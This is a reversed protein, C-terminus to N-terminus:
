GKKYEVARYMNKLSNDSSQQSTNAYVHGAAANSSALIAGHQTSTKLSYPLSAIDASHQCRSAAGCSHPHHHHHLHRNTVDIDGYNMVEEEDYDDSLVQSYNDFETSANVNLQRQFAPMSTAAYSCEIMDLHDRQQQQQQKLHHSGGAGVQSYIMNTHEPTLGASCLQAVGGSCSASTTLYGSPISQDRMSVQSHTSRTITASPNNLMHSSSVCSPSFIHIQNEQVM